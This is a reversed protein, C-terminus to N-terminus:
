SESELERIRDQIKAKPFHQELRPDYPEVELLLDWDVYHETCTDQKHEAIACGNTIPNYFYCEMCNKGKRWEGM